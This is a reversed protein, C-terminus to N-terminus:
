EKILIFHIDDNTIEYSSEDFFMDDIMNMLSYVPDYCWKQCTFYIFFYGKDAYEKIDEEVWDLSKYEKIIKKYNTFRKYCIQYGLGITKPKFLINVELLNNMMKQFKVFDGETKFAILNKYDHADWGDCTTKDVDVFNIKM